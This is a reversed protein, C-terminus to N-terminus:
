LDRILIEKDKLILVVEHAKLYIWIIFEYLLNM